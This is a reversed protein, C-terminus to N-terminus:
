QGLKIIGNDNDTNDNKQAKSAKFANLNYVIGIWFIRTESKSYNELKYVANDSKIVWERSNFVDSLM